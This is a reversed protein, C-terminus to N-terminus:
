PVLWDVLRLNPVFRFDSTNNTVLTLDHNLATVAIELDIGGISHGKNLMDACTKGFLQASDQDFVLVQVQPLLENAIADLTPQPNPRRYAWTFLEGLVITAIHSRGSHQEFRHAMGRRRKLYASCTNTDLLFSM